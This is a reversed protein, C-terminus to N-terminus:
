PILREHQQHVGGVTRPSRMSTSGPSPAPTTRTPSGSRSRSSTGSISAGGLDRATSSPCRRQLEHGLAREGRHRRVRRRVEPHGARFTGHRRDGRHGWHSRDGGDGGCSRDRRGRRAPGVRNRQRGALQRHVEGQRRVVLREACVDGPKYATGSARRRPADLGEDLQHGERHEQVEERGARRHGASRWRDERRLRHVEGDVIVPHIHHCRWRRRDDHTAIVGVVFGTVARNGSVTRRFNVRM